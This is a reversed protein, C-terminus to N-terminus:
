VQTFTKDCLTCSYLRKKSHIVMHKRLTSKEGFSKHCETCKFPKIGLNCLFLPFLLDELYNLFTNEILNLKFNFLGAFLYIM